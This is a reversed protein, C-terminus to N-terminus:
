PLSARTPVTTDPKHALVLLRGNDYFNVFEFADPGLETQLAAKTHTTVQAAIVLLNQELTLIAHKAKRRVDKGAATLAAEAPINTLAM